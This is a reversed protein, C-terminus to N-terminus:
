NYKYDKHSIYEKNIFKSIGIIDYDFHMEDDHEDDYEDTFQLNKLARM